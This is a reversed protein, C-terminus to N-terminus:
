YGNYGLGIKYPLWFLKRNLMYLVIGGGGDDDASFNEYIDIVKKVYLGCLTMM